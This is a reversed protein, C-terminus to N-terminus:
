LVTEAIQIAERGAASEKWAREFLEDSGVLAVFKRRFIAKQNALTKRAERYKANTFESIEADDCALILGDNLAEAARATLAVKVPRAGAVFAEGDNPHAEHRESFAVRGGDDSLTKFNSKVFIQKEPEVQFTPMVREKIKVDPEGGFYNERKIGALFVGDSDRILEKM